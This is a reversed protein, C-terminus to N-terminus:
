GNSEEKDKFSVTLQNFPIVIGRADFEKKVQELIDFKIELYNDSLVWAYLSMTVQSSGLETVAIKIDHNKLIRDDKSIVDMIAKRAEDINSDYDIGIEISVNRLGNKTYNVISSNALVGNPICIDRGDYTTIHTYFLNIKSVVGVNGHTDEKITDDVKFPRFVLILVGGAFNSLSGQIALGIALGVSTILGMITSAPIGMISVILLILLAYLGIKILSGFFSVMTKELSSKNLGKEIKGILYKILKSGVILVILAILINKGTSLCWKVVADKITIWTSASTFDPVEDKMVDVLAIAREMMIM